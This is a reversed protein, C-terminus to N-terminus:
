DHPADAAEGLFRRLAFRVVADRRRRPLQRLLVGEVTAWFADAAVEAEAPELHSSMLGVVMTRFIAEVEDNFDRVVDATRARDRMAVILPHLDALRNVIWVARDSVTRHSPPKGVPFDTLVKRLVAVFLHDRSPFYWYIANQAVGIERAIAVVSLAGFGGDRVQREAVAVIEDVKEERGVEHRTKPM